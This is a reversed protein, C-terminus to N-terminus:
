SKRRFKDALIAVAFFVGFVLIVIIIKSVNHVFFTSEQKTLIPGSIYTTEFLPTRKYIEGNPFVIMSIGTNAARFIETRTEVARMVTMMAHQYTGVSKKFWADNTLNVMFNIDQDAVKAVFKPFAIEFCIMPSFRCDGVNYSTLDTGYEWNAQGLHVNWLVPFIELLPLREGFPVLINKYYPTEVDKDGRIISASNYYLYPNPAEKDENVEFHPFGSFIPVNNKKVFDSLMYRYKVNRLFYTPIAAEPWIILDPSDEAVSTKSLELYNNVISDRYSKEWKLEQKINGQIISATKGTEIIKVNKKLLYGGAYWVIFLILTVYFLKKEKINKYIFINIIIIILSVLYVGGFEAVQILKDFEIISYGLNFWPFRFEGFNQLVEFSMWFVAFFLFKYKPFRRWGSNILSFLIFFYFSFLFFLLFYGPTVLILFHLVIINYISAWIISSWIIEKRSPNKDFFMFLPVFSGFALIGLHFDLRSLSILIASIIILKYNEFFKSIEKISLKM